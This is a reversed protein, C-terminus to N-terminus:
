RKKAKGHSRTHTPSSPQIGPSSIDYDSSLIGPSLIGPASSEGIDGMSSISPYSEMSDTDDTDESEGEEAKREGSIVMKRFM